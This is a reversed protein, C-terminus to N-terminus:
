QLKCNSIASQYNYTRREKGSFVSTQSPIFFARGAFSLIGLLSSRLASDIGVEVRDGKRCM